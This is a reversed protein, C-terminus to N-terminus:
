FCQSHPREGSLDASEAAEAVEEAAEASSPPLFGGSTVQETNHCYWSPPRAALVYVGCISCDCLAYLPCLLVLFCTPLQDLCTPTLWASSSGRFLSTPTAPPGPEFMSRRPPGGLSQRKRRLVDVQRRDSVSSGAAVVLSWPTVILSM